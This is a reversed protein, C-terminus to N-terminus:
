IRSVSLLTLSPPRSSALSAIPPSSPPRPSVEIPSPRHNQRRLHHAAVIAFCSVALLVCVATLTLAASEVADSAAASGVPATDTTGAGDAVAVAGVVVPDQDHHASLTMVTIALLLVAAAIFRMTLIAPSVHASPVRYDAARMVLM